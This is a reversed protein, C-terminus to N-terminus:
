YNEMWDDGSEENATFEWKGMIHKSSLGPRYQPRKGGEQFLGSYLKKKKKKLWKMWQEARIKRQCSLM